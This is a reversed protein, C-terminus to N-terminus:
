GENTKMKTTELLYGLDGSKSIEASKPEWSIKFGPIKFSGEVMQRIGNLRRQQHEHQHSQLQAIVLLLM